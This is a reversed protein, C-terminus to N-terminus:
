VVDPRLVFIKISWASIQFTVTTNFWQAGNYCKVSAGYFIFYNVLM